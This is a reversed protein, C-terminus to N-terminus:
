KRRKLRIVKLNAGPSIRRHAAQLEKGTWRSYYKLTTAPSKHGMLQSVEGINGGNRLADRAFAHRFSHPNLRGRIHGTAKLRELISYLSNRALPRGHLGIFLHDTEPNLTARVKLWQRLAARVPDNLPVDRMRNGKECVTLLGAKLDLDDLRANLLGGIRGGTDRLCYLLAVNRAQEWFEGMMTATKVLKAFTAASIPKPEVDPEVPLKLDLAPDVKILKERACWRFFQRTTILVTHITWKSLPENVMEGGRRKVQVNQLHHRFDKLDRSKVTSIPRDGLFKVLRRLKSRYATATENTKGSCVDDIYQEIAATLKTM